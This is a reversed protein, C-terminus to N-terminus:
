AIERQAAEDTGAAAPLKKRPGRKRACAFCLRDLLEETTPRRLTIDACIGAQDRGAIVMQPVHPALAHLDYLLTVLDIFDGQVLVTDIPAAKDLLSCAEDATAASFVNYSRCGLMFRLAGARESNSDILLIRKKPRM